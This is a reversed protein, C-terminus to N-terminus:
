KVTRVKRMFLAAAGLLGAGFLLSAGYNGATDPLVGGKITSAQKESPKAADQTVDTITEGTETILDSNITEGTLVADLLLNGDLDYVEILLSVGDADEIALLSEFSIPTKTGDKVLYFSFELQALQKFEEVIALLEALQDPTLEDLTEFEGFEMMRYSLSELQELVAPDDMVRDLHASLNAMEEETIGIEGFIGALEALFEEDIGEDMENLEEELLIYDEIDSIFLFSDEIIAGAELEGYESLLSELEERTMGYDDLLQNLSETTVRPGLVARIEEIDEFDEVTLDYSALYSEFESESLQVEQLYKELEDPAVAASAPFSGGFVMIAAFLAVLMKKM